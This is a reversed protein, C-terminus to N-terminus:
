EGQILAILELVHVTMQEDDLLGLWTVYDEVTSFGFHQIIWPTADGQLAQANDSETILAAGGLDGGSSPMAMLAQEEGTWNSLLFALDGGDIIGNEVVDACFQLENVSNGWVSLLTALDAGDVEGDNNFDARNRTKFASMSSIFEGGANSTAIVRWYHHFNTTFAQLQGGDVTYTTGTIGSIELTDGPPFTSENSIQLTYTVTLPEPVSSPDWEFPMDIMPTFCGAGSDFGFITEETPGVLEFSTPPPAGFTFNEFIALYGNQSDDGPRALVILDDDGDDDVDAFSISKVFLSAGLAVEDALPFDGGSNVNRLISITNLTDAHGLGVDPAGDADVNGAGLTIAEMGNGNFVEPCFGGACSFGINGISSQNYRLFLGVFNPVGEIGPIETWLFDAKGDLNVDSLVFDRPEVNQLFSLRGSFNGSGLYRNINFVGDHADTTHVVDLLGDGDIDALDVWVASFTPDVTQPAGFAGAGNSNELFSIFGDPAGGIVVSGTVIDIFANPDTTDLAGLKLTSIGLTQGGVPQSALFVGVPAAPDFPAPNSSGRFVYVSDGARDGAVIDPLGDGSVDALDLSGPRKLQVDSLTLGTTYGGLGDSLIVRVDGNFRVDTPGENAVAFDPFGDGNFDMARVAAPRVGVPIMVAERRFGNIGDPQAMVPAAAGAVLAMMFCM